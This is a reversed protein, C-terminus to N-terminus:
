ESSPSTEESGGKDSTLAGYHELIRAALKQDCFRACALQRAAVGFQKRLFSDHLLKLIADGLAIHDKVPVLIGTEGDNVVERCGDIDTAVVATGMASAEMLVRPVGERYSPLVLVDMISYLAPLDMRHGTRILASGLGHAELSLDVTGIDGKVVDGVALFRAQTFEAAIRRAAKLFEAYGKEVVPRGVIGVVPASVPLGFEARLRSREEASITAPDFRDLDIGSGVHFAKRIPCLRQAIARSKDGESLFLVRDALTAAVRECSGLLLKMPLATAETFCYGRVSNLRVPVGAAAAALQGLLGAKPTHTHVIDPREKRLLQTLNWLTRADALPDMKRAIPVTLVRIGVERLEKVWPGDGCIATVDFDRQFALLDRFIAFRMFESVTAIHWLKLRM